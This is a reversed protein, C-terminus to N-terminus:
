GEDHEAPADSSYTLGARARKVAWMEAESRLRADLDRSERLTELLLAIGDIILSLDQRLGAIALHLEAIAGILRDDNQTAM